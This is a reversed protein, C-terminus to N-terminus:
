KPPAKVEPLDAIPPLPAATADNQGDPFATWRVANATSLDGRHVELLLERQNKDDFFSYDAIWTGVNPVPPFAFGHCRLIDEPLVESFERSTNALLWDCLAKADTQGGHICTVNPLIEGQTWLFVISRPPPKAGVLATIPARDFIDLRTCIEEQAAAGFSFLFSAAAVSAVARKM